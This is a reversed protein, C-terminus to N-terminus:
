AASVAWYRRMKSGRRVGSSNFYLSCAETTAPLQRDDRIAVPITGVMVAFELSRPGVDHSLVGDTRTIEEHGFASQRLLKSLVEWGRSSLGAPIDMKQQSFYQCLDRCLAHKRRGSRKSLLVLFEATTRRTLPRRLRDPSAVCTRVQRACPSRERGTGKSTKGVDRQCSRRSKQASSHGKLSRNRQQEEQLRRDSENLQRASNPKTRPGAWSNSWYNVKMDPRCRAQVTM